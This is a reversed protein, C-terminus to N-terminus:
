SAKAAHKKEEQGQKSEAGFTQFPAARELGGTRRKGGREMVAPSGSANERAYVSAPHEMEKKKRM